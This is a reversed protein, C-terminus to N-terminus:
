RYEENAPINQAFYLASTRMRWHWKKAPMTYLVCGPIKELLLDVLKKHSGGYFAELLLTRPKEMLEQGDGSTISLQSAGSSMRVQSFEYAHSLREPTKTKFLRHAHAHIRM